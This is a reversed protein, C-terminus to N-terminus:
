RSALYSLSASGSASSAVVSFGTIGGLDPFSLPSSPAIPFGTSAGSTTSIDLLITNGATLNYFYLSRARFTSDGSSFLVANGSTSVVITGTLAM